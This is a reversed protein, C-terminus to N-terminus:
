LSSHGPPMRCLSRLWGACSRRPGPSRRTRRLSRGRCRPQSGPCARRPRTQQSGPSTCCQSWGPCRSRGRLLPTRSPSRRQGCTRLSHVECRAQCSNGAPSGQPHPLGKPVDQQFATSKCLRAVGPLPEPLAPSPETLALAKPWLHPAYLGFLINYIRYFTFQLRDELRRAAVSVGEPATVPSLVLLSFCFAIICGALLHVQWCPLTINPCLQSKKFPLPEWVFLAPSVTCRSGNVM